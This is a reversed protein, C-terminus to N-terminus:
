GEKGCDVPMLEGKYWGCAGARREFDVSMLVGKWLGSVDARREM